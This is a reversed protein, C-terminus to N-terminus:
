FIGLSGLAPQDALDSQGVQWLYDELALPSGPHKVLTLTDIYLIRSCLGFHLSAYAAQVELNFM